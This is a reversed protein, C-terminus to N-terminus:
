DLQLYLSPDNKDVYAKRAYYLLSTVSPGRSSLIVPVVHQVHSTARWNLKRFSENLIVFNKFNGNAFLMKDFKM